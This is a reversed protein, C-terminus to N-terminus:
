TCRGASFSRWRAGSPEQEEPSLAVAFARASSAATEGSARTIRELLREQEAPLRSASSPPCPAEGTM